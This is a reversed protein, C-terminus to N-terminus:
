GVSATKVIQQIRGFNGGNANATNSVNTDDSRYNVHNFVNFYEARFQLKWRETVSFTKALGMDWNFYNPWRLSGKGVDGLTGM